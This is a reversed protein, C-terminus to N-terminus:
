VLVIAQPYTKGYVFAPTGIILRSTDSFRKIVDKSTQMAWAYKSNRPIIEFFKTFGVLINSNVNMRSQALFIPGVSKFLARKAKANPTKPVDNM